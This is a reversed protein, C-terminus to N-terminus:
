TEIWNDEKSKSTDNFFLFDCLFNYFLCFVHFIGESLSLNGLYKIILM